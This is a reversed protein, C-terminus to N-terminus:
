AEGGIRPLPTPSVALTFALPRTLVWLHYMDAADVIEDHPPYVEVATADAGALEDKIRQMEPWTPRIQSLSSIGLHRVGSPLTRDLVSFVRNKHAIEFEAPWGEASVTGRPFRVAEWAGWEGTKRAAAEAALAERRQWRPLRLLAAHYAM